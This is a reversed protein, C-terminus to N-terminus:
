SGAVIYKRQQEATKFPFDLEERKGESTRGRWKESLLVTVLFRFYLKLNQSSFDCRSILLLQFIQTGMEAGQSGTM